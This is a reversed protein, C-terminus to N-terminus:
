SILYSHRSSALGPLQTGLDITRIIYIPALHIQIYSVSDLGLNALLVHVLGISCTHHSLSRCILHTM